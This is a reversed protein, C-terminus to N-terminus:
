FRLGVGGIFTRPPSPFGLVEEYREDGANEIRASIELGRWLAYAAALDVKTFSPNTRTSFTASDFDPRDGVHRGVASLTWRAPRWSLVLSASEQPRRLLEEGTALNETELYTAALRGDFSGRAFGVTL